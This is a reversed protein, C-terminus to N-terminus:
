EKLLVLNFLKALRKTLVAWLIVRGLVLAAQRPFLNTINSGILQLILNDNILNSFEERVVYKLPGGNCITSVIKADSFPILCDIYTDMIRKNPKWRGRADVDDKSCGNRRAYTAPLKRISHTGILNPSTLQFNKQPMIEEFVIRMRHKMIRFLLPSNHENRLIETHELHLVLGLLVCNNPDM